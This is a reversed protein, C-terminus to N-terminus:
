PDVVSSGSFFSKFPKMIGKGVSSFFRAAANQQKTPTTLHTELAEIIVEDCLQLQMVTLLGKASDFRQCLDRFLAKYMQKISKDNNPSVTVDAHEIQQMAKDTLNKFVMCFEEQNVSEQTKQITLMILGTLMLVIQKRNSKTASESFPSGEMQDTLPQRSPECPARDTNEGPSQFQGREESYRLDSSGSAQSDFDSPDVGSSGSFRSKFSKMIGKGVTKQKTLHTKLAEIIVEDYLQLQMVTLLGKASSFRECLDRFLAKYMAKISKDNDTSMTIDGLEIKQFAKDTLNKFVTNFEEQNMSEQSKQMTRMILGTLVLVVMKHNKVSESLSSVDLHDRLPHRSPDWLASDTTEGSSQKQESIDAVESVDEADSDEADGGNGPCRLPECPAGDEAQSDFDGAGGNERRTPRNNVETLIDMVAKESSSYVIEYDWKSRILQMPEEGQNDLLPVTNVREGRQPTCRCKDLCMCHLIHGVLDVMAEINEVYIWNSEETRCKLHGTNSRLEIALLYNIRAAAEKAVLRSFESMNECSCCSPSTNNARAFVQPLIHDINELVYSEDVRFLCQEPQVHSHIRQLKSHWVSVISRISCMIEETVSNVVDHCFRKAAPKQLVSRGRSPDWVLVYYAGKDANIRDAHVLPLHVNDSVKLKSSDLILRHHNKTREM